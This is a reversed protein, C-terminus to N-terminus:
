PRIREGFAGICLARERYLQRTLTFALPSFSGIRRGGDGLVERPLCRALARPINIVSVTAGDANADASSIGWNLRLVVLTPSQTQHVVAASVVSCIRRRQEGSCRRARTRTV